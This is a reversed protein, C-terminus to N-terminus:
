AAGDGNGGNAMLADIENLDVRLLRPGSRYPTLRGDAIMARITFPHVDLYTAAAAIRAYRRAVVPPVDRPKLKPM